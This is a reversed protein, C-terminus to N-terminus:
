VIKFSSFFVVIVKDELNKVTFNTADLKVMVEPKASCVYCKPNPKELPAPALLHGRFNPKRNLYVTRCADFNGSLVKFAEVVLCGAIIANTTAIAPIINGAMALFHM